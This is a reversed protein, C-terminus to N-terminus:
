ANFQYENVNEDDHVPMNDKDWFSVKSRYSKQHEVYTIDNLEYLCSRKYRLYGYVIDIINYIVKNEWVFSQFYKM